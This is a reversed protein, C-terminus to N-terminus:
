RVVAMEWGKELERTTSKRKEQLYDKEKRRKFDFIIKKKYASVRRKKKFCHIYPAHNQLDQAKQLRLSTDARISFCLVFSIQWKALVRQSDGKEPKGSVATKLASIWWMLLQGKLYETISLITIKLHVRFSSNWPVSLGWTSTMPCKTKYTSIEKWHWHTGRLKTLGSPYDVFCNSWEIHGMVWTGRGPEKLEEYKNDYFWYPCNRKLVPTIFLHSRKLALSFHIYSIYEM